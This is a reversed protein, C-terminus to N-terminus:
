RYTGYKGQGRKEDYLHTLTYHTLLKIHGLCKIQSINNKEGYRTLTHYLPNKWMTGM